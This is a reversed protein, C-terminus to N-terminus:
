RLLVGGWKRPRHSSIMPRPDRCREGIIHLSLFVRSGTAFPGPNTAHGVAFCTPAMSPSRLRAPWVDSHRLLAIGICTMPSHEWKNELIRFKRLYERM